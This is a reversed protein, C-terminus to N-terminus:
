YQYFFLEGTTSTIKNTQEKAKQKTQIILKDYM